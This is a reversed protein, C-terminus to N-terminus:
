EVVRWLELVNDHRSLAQGTTALVGSTNLGGALLISGFGFATFPWRDKPWRLLENWTQGDRSGTVTAWRERNVKSPEVATSFFMSGNVECAQLCSGTLPALETVNGADDLRRVSNRTLPSDSAFYLADKRPLAAAVRAHQDGQLVTEVKSWDGSAKLVRCEQGYDGTFLWFCRRFRDWLVSHVH